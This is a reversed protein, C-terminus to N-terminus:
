SVGVCSYQIEAARMCTFSVSPNGATLRQAQFGGFAFNYADFGIEDDTEGAALEFERSEAEGGVTSIGVLDVAIADSANTNVLGLFAGGYTTVRLGTEPDTFITVMKGALGNAQGTILHDSSLYGSPGIGGLAAADAASNATPVTGLSSAKINTGTITGKKIKAGTVAGNKLQKTGVSNKALKSAAFATGGALFLFLCFTSVVNAYTLRPRLKKVSDEQDVHRLVLCTSERM